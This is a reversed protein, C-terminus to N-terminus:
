AASATTCKRGWLKQLHAIDRSHDSLWVALYDPDDLAVVCWFADITSQPTRYTPKAPEPQPPPSSLEWQRRVQAAYDWGAPSAELLAFARSIEAQIQEQGHLEILGWLEAHYQAGDVAAAKELIGAQWYWAFYDACEAFDELTAIPLAEITQAAANM